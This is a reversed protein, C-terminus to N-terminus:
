AKIEWSKIRLLLISLVALWLVYSYTMTREQAGISSTAVIFGFIALILFTALIGISFLRFWNKYTAAGFGIALLFFIMSLAGLVVNINSPAEGLQMPFFAWILTVIANGLIMLATIRLLRNRDSSVWIGLVFAILILNYVLNLLVVLSRTPAGVASLENLSQYIFNYGTYLIGALIDTFIFLLPALIGCIILVKNLSNKESLKMIKVDNKIYAVKIDKTGSRKQLNKRGTEFRIGIM